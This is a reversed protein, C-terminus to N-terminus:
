GNKLKGRTKRAIRDYRTKYRRNRSVARMIYDALMLDRKRKIIIASLRDVPYFDIKGCLLAHGKQKFNKVFTEARWIMVSYVFSQVPTIDQTQAFIENARFNVPKRKYICHVQETKVTMLSDLKKRIFYNVINRVEEGTQLPAIPSIWAVIDCDNNLLFDYVVEDTKTSNKVLNDPRKYFDVGYRKAIKSFIRDEANLTIRSFVGSERAARIAYYLLPKGKITALNKMPLRTSGIRAPVMGIIKLNRHKLAAM